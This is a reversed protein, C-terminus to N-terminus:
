AAARHRGGYALLGYLVVVDIAFIALAALPYSPLFLLQAIASLGATLVGVWRAAQNRAWIGIGAFVQVVGIVLVIWGWTNLDSFVYKVGHAFFRSDDIAAIGYIVNMVGAILIMTGAFAVWGSGRSEAYEAAEGGAESRMPTTATGGAM